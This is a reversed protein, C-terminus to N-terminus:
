KKVCLLERAKEENIPIDVFKRIDNRLHIGKLFKIEKDYCQQYGIRYTNLQYALYEKDLTSTRKLDALGLQENIEIVMDLRGAAIPKDNDDFVIIPIENGCCKWGFQRKLFKYNHLEISSLDEIGNEEYNQIIEHMETGKESAKKLVESSVGDYKGKLVAKILTTISPVIIGDVLYMHNEDFYELTHNKIKWTEM